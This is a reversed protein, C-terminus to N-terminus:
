RASVAIIECAEILKEKTEANAPLVDDTGVSRLFVDNIAVDLGDYTGPEWDVATELTQAQLDAWQETTKLRGNKMDRRLVEALGTYIGSVRQKTATPANRLIKSITADPVAASTESDTNVAPLSLGNPFAISLALIVGAVWVLKKM